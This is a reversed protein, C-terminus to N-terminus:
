SLILVNDCFMSCHITVCSDFVVYRGLWFGGDHYFFCVLLVAVRQHCILTFIYFMLVASCHGIVRIICFLIRSRLVILISM